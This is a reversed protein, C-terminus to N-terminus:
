GDTSEPDTTALQYLVLDSRLKGGITEWFSRADGNTAYVLACCREIGQERLTELCRHVLETGLGRHRCEPAVALHYLFGRRGDHGSLVAAVIRGEMVAVLSQGPNQRLFQSTGAHTDGPGFGVGDCSTWLDWVEPIDPQEFPRITIQPGLASGRADRTGLDAPRALRGAIEAIQAAHRTEPLGVFALWQYGDLVVGTPHERRLDELRLGVSRGLVDRLARRSAEIADWAAAATMQGTPQSGQLKRTRDVFAPMELYRSFAEADFPESVSRREVNAITASLVKAISGEIQALHEIVMAVSWGGESPVVDRSVSSTAHFAHALEVRRAELGSELMEIRPDIM